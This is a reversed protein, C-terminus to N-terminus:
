FTKSVVTISSYVREKRLNCLMKHHNSVGTECSSYHMFLNRTKTVFLDITTSTISMFCIPENVLGKSYHWDFFQTMIFDDMLLINDYSNTYLTIAKNIESIFVEQLTPAEHLGIMLWKPKTLNLELPLIEICQPTSYNCNLNQNFCLAEVTKIRIETLHTITILTVNSILFHYM